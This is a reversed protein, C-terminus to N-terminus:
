CYPSLKGLVEEVIGWGARGERGRIQVKQRQRWEGQSSLRSETRAIGGRYLVQVQFPAKAQQNRSKMSWVNGSLNVM